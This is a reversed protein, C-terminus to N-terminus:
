EKRWQYFTAERLGVEGNKKVLRVITWDTGGYKSYFRFFQGLRGPEGADAGYKKIERVMTEYPVLGADQERLGSEEIRLKRKRDQLEAIDFGLVELEKRVEKLTKM